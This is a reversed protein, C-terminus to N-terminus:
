QELKWFLLYPIQGESNFTRWVAEDRDRTAEFEFTVGDKSIRTERYDGSQSWCTSGGGSTM